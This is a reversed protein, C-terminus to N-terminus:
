QDLRLAKDSCRRSGKVQFTLLTDLLDNFFITFVVQGDNETNRVRVAGLEISFRHHM